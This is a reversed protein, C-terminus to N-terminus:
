PVLKGKTASNDVLWLLETKADLEIDDFEEEEDM